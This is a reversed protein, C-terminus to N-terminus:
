CFDGGDIIMERRYIPIETSDRLGLVKKGRVDYVQNDNYFIDGMQLADLVFKICNDVDKRKLDSIKSFTFTLEVIVPAHGFIYLELGHHGIGNLIAAIMSQKEVRQSDYARGYPTWAARRWPITKGLLTIILMNQCSHCLSLLCMIYWTRRVDLPIQVPPM